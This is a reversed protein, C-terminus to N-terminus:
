TSRRYHLQFGYAQTSRHCVDKPSGNPVDSGSIFPRVGEGSSFSDGLAAYIVGNVAVHWNDLGATIDYPGQRRDPQERPLFRVRDSRWEGLLGTRSGTKETIAAGGTVKVFSSADLGLNLTYWSFNTGTAIGQVRYVNGGQRIAPGIAQGGGFGDVLKADESYSLVTIPGKLKPDYPSDTKFGFGYIAGCNGNIHTHTQLYTGPNGDGGYGVSFSGGTGSTVQTFEWGSVFTATSSTPRTASRAWRSSRSLSRPSARSGHTAFDCPINGQRFRHGLAYASPPAPTEAVGTHCLSFSVMLVIV